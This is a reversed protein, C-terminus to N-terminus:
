GTLASDLEIRGETNSIINHAVQDCMHCLAIVDLWYQSTYGKHHHWYVAQKGCGQCTQTKIARLDGRRVARSVAARAKVALPHRLRTNRLRRLQMARGKTTKLYRDKIEKRKKKGKESQAYRKAAAKFKETQQYRLTRTRGKPSRNGRTQAAKGSKTQFYDKQYKATCPKCCPKVGLRHRPSKGFESLAKEDKCAACRKTEIPESM